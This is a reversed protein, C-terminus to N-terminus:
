IKIRPLVITVYFLMRCDHSEFPPSVVGCINEYSNAVRRSYDALHIPPTNILIEEVDYM